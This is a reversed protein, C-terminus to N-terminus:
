CIVQVRTSISQALKQSLPRQALTLGRKTFKSWVTIVIHLIRFNTKYTKFFSDCNVSYIASWIVSAYELKCICYNSNSSNCTLYVSKLAFNASNRLVSGLTKFSKLIVNDINEYCSLQENFRVGILTLRIQSAVDDITLSCSLSIRM